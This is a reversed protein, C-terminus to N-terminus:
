GGCRLDLVDSLVGLLAEASSCCMDLTSGDEHTPPLLIRFASGPANLLQLGMYLSNLPVRAEHALWRLVQERGDAASRHAAAQWAPHRPPPDNLSAAVCPVVRLADQSVQTREAQLRAAFVEARAVSSRPVPDSCDYIGGERDNISRVEACLQM